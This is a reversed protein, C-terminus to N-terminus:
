FDYSPFLQQLDTLHTMRSVTSGPEIKTKIQVKRVWLKDIQYFPLRHCAELSDPTISIGTAM